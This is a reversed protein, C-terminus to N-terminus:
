AEPDVPLMDEEVTMSFLQEDMAFYRWKECTERRLEEGAENTVFKKV